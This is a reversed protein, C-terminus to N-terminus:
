NMVKKLPFHNVQTKDESKPEPISEEEDESQALKPDIEATRKLFQRNRACVRFHLQSGAILIFEDDVELV